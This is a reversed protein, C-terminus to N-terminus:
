KRAPCRLCTCLTCSTQISDKSVLPVKPSRGLPPFCPPRLRRHSAARQRRGPEAAPSHQRRGGPPIASLSPALCRVCRRGAADRSFCPRVSGNPQSSGLMGPAQTGLPCFAPPQADALVLPPPPLCPTCPYHPRPWRHAGTCEPGKAVLRPALGDTHVRPPPLLALFAPARAVTLVLATTLV